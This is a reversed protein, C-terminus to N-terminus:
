STVYRSYTALVAFLVNDKPYFRKMMIQYSDIIYKSQFDGQKKPGIVPQIFLGDCFEQELAKM